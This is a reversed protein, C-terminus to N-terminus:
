FSLFVIKIIKRLIDKEKNFFNVDKTKKGLMIM